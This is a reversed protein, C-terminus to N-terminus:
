EGLLLMGGGGAVVGVAWAVAADVVDNVLDFTPEFGSVHSLGVLMPFMLAALLALRGRDMAFGLQWMEMTMYLPMSFVSAGGVARALGAAFRRGPSRPTAASPSPHAAEAM